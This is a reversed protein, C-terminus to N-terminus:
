RVPLAELAFAAADDSSWPESPYGRLLFRWMQDDLAEGGVRKADALQLGRGRDRLAGDCKSAFAFTALRACRGNPNDTSDPQQEDPQAADADNRDDGSSGFSLAGDDIVRMARRTLLQFRGTDQLQMCGFAMSPIGQCASDDGCWRAGEAPLWHRM